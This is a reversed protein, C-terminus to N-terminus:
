PHELIKLPKGTPETTFFVGALPSSALKVGSGLLDWIGSGTLDWCIHSQM